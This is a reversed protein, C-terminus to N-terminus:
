NKRRIGGCKAAQASNAFVIAHTQGHEAADDSPIRVVLQRTTSTQKKGTAVASQVDLVLKYNINQMGGALLSVSKLKGVGDIFPALHRLFSLDRDAM